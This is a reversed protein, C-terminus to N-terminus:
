WSPRAPCISPRSSSTAVRRPLHETQEIVKAVRHPLAAAADATKAIHTLTTNVVGLVEETAAVIAAIDELHAVGPVRARARASRLPDARGPLGLLEGIM